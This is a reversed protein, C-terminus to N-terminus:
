ERSPYIGSVCIIYNLATYPQMNNVPLGAGTIGVTVNGTVTAGTNMAVNPAEANYINIGRGGNTSAGLTTAGNTGPIQETGEVNSAKVTVAADNLGAIHNHPPINPVLLTNNETGSMEGLTRNSLGPGQGPGLPVRGRLDPLAFTTVGDGGYQTGLLSFLASNQSIALLRGDCAMFGRPIFNGAFLKIVALYEEM